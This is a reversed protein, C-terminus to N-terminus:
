SVLLEEDIDESSADDLVDTFAAKKIEADKASKVGKVLYFIIIIKMILGSAISSPDLIVNLIILGVYLLLGTLLAPFPYKKAMFGLGIFFLGIFVDLYLLYFPLGIYDQSNMNIQIFNFVMIFGGVVFLSGRALRLTKDVEDRLRKSRAMEVNEISLSEENNAFLSEPGEKTKDEM